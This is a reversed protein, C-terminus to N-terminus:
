EAILFNLSGVGIKMRRLLLKNVEFNNVVVTTVWSKAVKRSHDFSSATFGLKDSPNFLMEFAIVALGVFSKLALAWGGHWFGVSEVTHNANVQQFNLIGIAYPTKVQVCKAPTNRDLLDLNNAIVIGFACFVRPM